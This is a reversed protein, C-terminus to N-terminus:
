HFTFETMVAPLSLSREGQQLNGRSLGSQHRRPLHRIGVQINGSAPAGTGQHQGLTSSPPLASCPGPLPRGEEQVQLYPDAEESTDRPEQLGRPNQQLVGAEPIVLSSSSPMFRSLSPQYQPILPVHAKVTGPQHVQTGTVPPHGLRDGTKLMKSEM